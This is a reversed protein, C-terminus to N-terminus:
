SHKKELYDVYAEETDDAGALSGLLSTTVPPLHGEGVSPSTPSFARFYDSVLRSLSTKRHAAEGKAVAILRDDVYLTLKSM